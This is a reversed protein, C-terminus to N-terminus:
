TFPACPFLLALQISNGRQLLLQELLSLQLHDRNGAAVAMEGRKQKFNYLKLTQWAALLCGGTESEIRAKFSKGFEIQRKRKSNLKELKVCKLKLVTVQFNSNSSFKTINRFLLM